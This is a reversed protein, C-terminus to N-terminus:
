VSVLIKRRRMAWGIAGFGLLILAWSSPEPVLGVAPTFRAWVLADNFSTDLFNIDGQVVTAASDSGGNSNLAARATFSSQATAYPVLALCADFSANTACGYTLTYDSNFAGTFVQDLLAQAAAQADTANQFAFDSLSTCGGFVGSCSGEVFQVDYTGGNVTVGTAGTLQGSGNIMQSAAQAPVALPLAAATLAVALITRNM